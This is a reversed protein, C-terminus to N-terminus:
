KMLFFFAFNTSFTALMCERKKGSPHPFDRHDSPLKLREMLKKPQFILALRFEEYCIEVCRRIEDLNPLGPLHIHRDPTLPSQDPTNESSGNQSPSLRKRRRKPLSQETPDSQMSDANEDYCPSSILAEFDTNLGDVNAIMKLSRRRTAMCPGCVPKVGDCKLKRARCQPCANGRGINRNRTSMNGSHDEM